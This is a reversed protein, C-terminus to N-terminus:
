RAASQASVNPWGVRRAPQDLRALTLPASVDDVIRDIVLRLFQERPLKADDGFVYDVLSVALSLEARSYKRPSALRAELAGFYEKSFVTLREIEIVYAHAVELQRYKDPDSWYEPHARLWSKAVEPLGSAQTEFDLVPPTGLYSM